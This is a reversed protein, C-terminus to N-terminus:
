SGILPTTPSPNGYQISGCCTGRSPTSRSWAECANRQEAASGDNEIKRQPAGYAIREQM